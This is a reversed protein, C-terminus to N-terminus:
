EATRAQPVPLTQDFQLGTPQLAIAELDNMLELRAIAYAVTAASLDLQAQLLSDQADLKERAEVRGASYLDTTAEVRAKALSLAVTQIRYSDIASRINRLSSRVNAGITDESQERQRLALDFDILASRYANREPLKDLALDLQFGASWNVRSWDLNLGKGSQAPVSLAATFDLSMNLADESVDIRRGADEVEDVATRYDYRRQLALDVATAEDLQLEDVGQQALKDLEATDLEVHARIPLGLTLKFQDLQTQLRNKALVRQNDASYEDQQARGLDIITRRGAGYLEEIQARLDVLSRYNAEVNALDAAERVVNWYDSVVNVAFTARFREFSRMAYIVDRESQTLPERVIRRGSGRLLPQTIALDLISGGDFPGGSIISRLFSNAFSAVVRMGATSTAAASLDPAILADASDDGTGDIRADVGLGFHWEFDYQSRTLSLAALYLQEKQRQFDRSNEAAVDLAQVLTLRVPADAALLRARLTDVPREVHFQRPAGVVKESAKALIGYVQEDASDRNAEASWCAAFVVLCCAHPLPRSFQMRDLAVFSARM